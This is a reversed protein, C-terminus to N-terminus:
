GADDRPWKNPPRFVNRVGVAQELARIRDELELERSRFNLELIGKAAIVRTQDAAETKDMIEILVAVARRSASRLATITQEFLRARARNYVESFAPQQLWRWLTSANIGIARAAADTNPDALLAEIAQLQKPPLKTASVRM